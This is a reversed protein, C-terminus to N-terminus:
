IEADATWHLFIHNGANDTVAQPNFVLFASEGPSVGNPYFNSDGSTGVQVNRWNSNAESPNYGTMTPSSRKRVAFPVLMGYGTTTGATQAVYYLAGLYSGSNQVPAVSLNFSKEYYRQCLALEEGIDRQEFPTAVSGAELQVQAIDFTGSQQGLSNTRSNWDTGADFWINLSLYDNNNSGLTKGSISPFTVTATFKQWSTTLARTAGAVIVSASPSGGTGFNQDFDIWVNKSANAKACFSLTATQGAFTRVSEIKQQKITYQNTTVAAAVVTRSYYTPEYPVDTQGLAFSQRSVTQTSTSVLNSWRDDSGCGTATQSTARQWIDFNGNIIVNRNKFLSLTDAALSTPVVSGAAPVNVVGRIGLHIVSINNTGSPPAGTFTLVAGVLTYASPQQVVGSISVIIASVSAPSETLTFDVQAGTGSFYDVPFNSTTLPRGIYSM